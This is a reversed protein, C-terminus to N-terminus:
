DSRKDSYGQKSSADWGWLVGSREKIRLEGWEKWNVAVGEGISDVGACDIRLYFDDGIDNGNGDYPTFVNDDSGHGSVACGPAAAQLASLQAKLSTGASLAPLRSPHRRAPAAKVGLASLFPPAFIGVDPGGWHLTEMMSESGFAVGFAPGEVDDATFTDDFTPGSSDSGCASFLTVVAFLAASRVLTLHRMSVGTTTPHPGRLPARRLHLTSRGPRWRLSGAWICGNTPRRECLPLALLEFPRLALDRGAGRPVGM